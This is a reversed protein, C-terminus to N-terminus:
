ESLTVTGDQHTVLTSGAAALEPSVLDPAISTVLNRAIAFATLQSVGNVGQLSWFEAAVAPDSLQKVIENLQQAMYGAMQRYIGKVNACAVSVASPEPINIILSM